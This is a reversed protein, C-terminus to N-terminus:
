FTTGSMESRWFDAVGSGNRCPRGLHGGEFVSVIRTQSKGGGRVRGSIVKSGYSLHVSVSAHAVINFKYCTRISDAVFAHAFM